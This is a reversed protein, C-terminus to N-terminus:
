PQTKADIREIKFFHLKPEFTTEDQAQAFYNQHSDFFRFLSLNQNRTELDKLEPRSKCLERM